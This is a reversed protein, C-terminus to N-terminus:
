LSGQNLNADVATAALSVDYRRIMQRRGAELAALVALCEGGEAGLPAASRHGGEHADGVSGYQAAVLDKM